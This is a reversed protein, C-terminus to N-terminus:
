SIWFFLHTPNFLRTKRLGSQLVEMCDILKVVLKKITVRIEFLLNKKLVDLALAVPVNHYAVAL